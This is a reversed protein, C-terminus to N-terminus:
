SDGKSGRGVTLAELQLRIFGDSAFDEVRRGLLELSRDVVRNLSDAHENLRFQISQYLAEGRGNFELGDNEVVVVKSAYKAASEGAASVGKGILAIIVDGGHKEAAQRAFAINALANSRLGSGSTECFALVNGM